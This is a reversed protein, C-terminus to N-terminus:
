SNKIQNQEDETFDKGATWWTENLFKGEIFYECLIETHGLNYRDPPPDEWLIRKLFVESYKARREIAGFDMDMVSRMFSILHKVMPRKKEPNGDGVIKYLQKAM